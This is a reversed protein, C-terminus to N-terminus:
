EANEDIMKQIADNCLKAADALSLKDSFTAEQFAPLLAAAMESRLTFEVPSVAVGYQMRAQFADYLEAKDAPFHESADKRGSLGATTLTAMEPDAKWELLKFAEDKHASNAFIGLNWGSLLSVINGAGKPFDAAVLKAAADEDVSDWFWAGAITAGAKGQNFADYMRTTDMTMLTDGGVTAFVKRCTDIWKQGIENDLNAVWKGDEEKVFSGGETFLFLGMLQCPIANSDYRLVLPIYGAASAKECYALFDDVTVPTEIGLETLVDQNYLMTQVDAVQPIAYYTGDVMNRQMASDIYDEPNLADSAAIYDDLPALVGARALQAVYDTEVFVADYDSGDGMSVTLLKPHLEAFPTEVFSVTIGPNKAEFDAIHEKLLGADTGPNTPDTHFVLETEALAGFASLMLLLALALSFLKKM